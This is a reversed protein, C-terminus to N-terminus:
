PPGRMMAHIRQTVVQAHRVGYLRFCRGRTAHLTVFGPAFAIRRIACLEVAAGSSSVLRRDTLMWHRRTELGFGILGAAAFPLLGFMAAQAAGPLLLRLLALLFTVGVLALTAFVILIHPDPRFVCLATEGPQLTVRGFRARFADRVPALGPSLILGLALPALLLVYPFALIRM